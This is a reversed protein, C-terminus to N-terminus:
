RTPCSVRGPPVWGWPRTVPDFHRYVFSQKARAKTLPESVEAKRVLAPSPAHQPDRGAGRLRINFKPRLSLGAARHLNNKKERRIGVM